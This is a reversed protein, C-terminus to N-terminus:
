PDTNLLDVLTSGVANALREARALSISVRGCEVESIYSRNLGSVDALNQQTLGLQLRKTRLARGFQFAILQQRDGVFVPAM